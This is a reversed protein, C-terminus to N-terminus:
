SGADKRDPSESLLTLTAERAKELTLGANALLKAAPRDECRLLGLLLHETGVHNHKFSRAEEIAYELVKKALPYQPPEGSAVQDSGTQVLEDVAARITDLDVELRLLVNVAVGSGEKLIGFLLHETGIWASHSRTSEESALHVVKRARMTFREYM